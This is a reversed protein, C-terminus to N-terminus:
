FTCLLSLYLEIAALYKHFQAYYDSSFLFVWNMFESIGEGVLSTQTVAQLKEISFVLTVVLKSATM